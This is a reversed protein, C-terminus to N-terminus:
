RAYAARRNRKARSSFEPALSRRFASWRAADSGPWAEAARFREAHFRAGDAEVGAQVRLMGGRWPRYVGLRRQRRRSERLVDAKMLKVRQPAAVVGRPPRAELWDLVERKRLLSEPLRVLDYRKGRFWRADFAPYKSRLMLLWRSRASEVEFGM